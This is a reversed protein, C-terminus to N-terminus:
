ATGEPPKSPSVARRGGEYVSLHRFQAVPQNAEETAADDTKVIKFGQGEYVDLKRYMQPTGPIPIAVRVYARGQSDGGFGLVMVAGPVQETVIKADFAM